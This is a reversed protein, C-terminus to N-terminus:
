TNMRLSFKNEIFPIPVYLIGTSNVRRFVIEDGWLEGFSDELTSVGIDIGLYELYKSCKM